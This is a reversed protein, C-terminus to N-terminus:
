THSLKLNGNDNIVSMEVVFSAVSTKCQDCQPMIAATKCVASDFKIQIFIRWKSVFGGGGGGQVRANYILM